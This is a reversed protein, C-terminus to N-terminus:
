IEMMASQGETIKKNKNERNMDLQKITKKHYEAKLKMAKLTKQKCTCIIENITKNIRAINYKIYTYWSTCLSYKSQIKNGQSNNCTHVYISTYLAHEINFQKYVTSVCIKTLDFNRQKLVFHSKTPM